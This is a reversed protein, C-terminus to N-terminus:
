LTSTIAISSNSYTQTGPPPVVPVTLQMLLVSANLRVWPHLLVCINYIRWAGFTIESRIVENSCPIHPLILLVHTTLLVIAAVYLQFLRGDNLDHGQRAFYVVAQM